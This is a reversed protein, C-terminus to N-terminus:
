VDITERAEAEDKEDSSVMSRMRMVAGRLGKGGRQRHLLYGAWAMCVSSMLLSVASWVQMPLYSKYKSILFGAIVPGTLAFPAAVTYMMGTWQGLKSQADRSHGLIHAISAPPLGIVSGSIAGYLVVFALTGARTPCFIWLCSILIASVFTVVAHVHVAGLHDSLYGAVIRGITSFANLMALLYFTRLADKPRAEFMETSGPFPVTPRDKYGVGEAAAWEEFNFFVAYFGFFMFAIAATFLSFSANSVAHTDIWLSVQMWKEPKRFQHQPHPQALTFAFCSTVAIVVAVCLVAYQFGIKQILMKTMIPYVLGAISAGSAVIGIALAKKKAFWTAAIQSSTVFFCSMGLGMILGQFLWILGYNGQNYGGNGAARSLAGMGTPVLIFGAALLARHYGADLIRGVAFSFILVLFSETSGVLNLLLMNRGPLLEQMYFSAFTGYANVLGWSNFMLFFCAALTIYAQKQRPWVPTASSDGTLVPTHSVTSPKSPPEDDSTFTSLGSRPTEDQLNISCSTRM